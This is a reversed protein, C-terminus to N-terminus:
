YRTHGGHNNMCAICRRRMSHVLNKIREQPINDWEEQLMQILAARNQPSRGQVRRGLEDWLHEIPSLDPSYPMWRMRTVENDELFQLTDRAVHPRANDQQFITVDPHIELFPLVHDRLIEERYRQANITGQVIVLPTRHRGSIGGWVMVGGGGWRDREQICCQSYREGKRRWVRQRGDSMSVCFRSEDSFLVTNWREFTWRHHDRAWQLRNMRNQISLIPGFYPRRSRLGAKKLRRIVTQPSIPRGRSGRIEAATATATRFRDRLHSLRIARDQRDTTVPPRGSRPLDKVSGTATYRTMLRSITSTSCAMILAIRRQELGAELMGIARLRQEERLRPMAFSLTNEKETTGTSETQSTKDMEIQLLIMKPRFDPKKKKTIGSRSLWQM